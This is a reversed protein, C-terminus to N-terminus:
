PIQGGGPRVAVALPPPSSAPRHRAYTHSAGTTVTAGTTSFTEIVPNAFLFLLLTVAAAALVGVRSGWSWSLPAAEEGEEPQMWMKVVVMLYYYVGVVSALLGLVALGTDGAKIAASFLYLKGFFGAAPPIGALSFMFISMLVATFPHKHALGRFDDIKTRERGDSSLLMVIGFAGLNMFTYVLMYFLVASRGLENNALVGVLLYGAHAVSSYALMRKIDTQWLAVVNGVIMTLAAFAWMTASLVNHAVVLQGAVAAPVASQTADIQLFTEAVRILVAFAAAKAAASM